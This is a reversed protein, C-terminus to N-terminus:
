FDLAHQVGEGDRLRYCEENRGKTCLFEPVGGRASCEKNKRRVSCTNMEAPPSKSPMVGECPGASTGRRAGTKCRRGWSRPM